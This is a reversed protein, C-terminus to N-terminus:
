HYDENLVSQSPSVSFETEPGYGTGIACIIESNADRKLM